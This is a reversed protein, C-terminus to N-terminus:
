PNRPQGAVNLTGGFVDDKEQGDKDDLKRKKNINGEEGNGDEDRKEKKEGKKVDRNWGALDVREPNHCAFLKKGLRKIEKYDALPPPQVLLQALYSITELLKEKLTLTETPASSSSFKSDIYARAITNDAAYLAALWIQSPSYLFYADSLLATTKLCDKTAGYVKNEIHRYLIPSETRNVLAEFADQDLGIRAGKRHVLHRLEMFGGEMGRFPHRIDFTFRLGQTLLVEPAIIEEPTTKEMKAAFGNLSTYHNETKTSLFLACLMISKLPYTMPSNQLYFRKIYQVATAKVNTPFKCVDALEMAKVCYYNVLKREEQVTLCDIEREEKETGETTITEVGETKSAAERARRIAARVREAAIRNTAARISVLSEPTFSWLRYQTSNRYLEDEKM